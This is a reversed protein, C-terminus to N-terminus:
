VQTKKQLMLLWIRLCLMKLILVVLTLIRELYVLLPKKKNITRSRYRNKLELINNELLEVLFKIVSVADTSINPELDIGSKNVLWDVFDSDNEIMNYLIKSIQKKSM